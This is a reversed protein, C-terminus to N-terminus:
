FDNTFVLIRLILRDKDRVTVEVGGSSDGFSYVTHESDVAEQHWPKGYLTEARSFPEGVRLGKPTEPLSDSVKGGAYDDSVMVGVIKDNYLYVEGSGFLLHSGKKGSGYVMEEENDGYLPEWYRGLMKEATEMSFRDGVKLAGPRLESPNLAAVKEGDTVLYFSDTFYIKKNEARLPTDLLYCDRAGAPLATLTGLVKSDTIPDEIPYLLEAKSVPDGIRLGRATEAGADTLSIRKIEGYVILFTIDRFKLEYGPITGSASKVFKGGDDSLQVPNESRMEGFARRAAAADWKDGLALPGFRCDSSTMMSPEKPASPSRYLSNYFIIATVKRSPRDIEFVM